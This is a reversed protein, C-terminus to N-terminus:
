PARSPNADLRSGLRQERPRGRSSRLPPDSALARASPRIAASGRAAAPSSSSAPHPSRDLERRPRELQRSASAGARWRRRPAPDLSVARGHSSESASVARFRPSACRQRAPERAPGGRATPSARPWSGTSSTARRRGPRWSAPRQSSHRSTVSSILPSSRIAAPDRLARRDAARSSRVSAACARRRARARARAGLESRARSAARSRAGPSTRSCFTANAPRAVASRRARLRDNRGYPREHLASRAGSASAIPMPARPPDDHRRLHVADVRRDVAARGLGGVPTASTSPWTSRWGPGDGSTKVRRSGAPRARRGRRPRSAGSRSARARPRSRRGRRRARDFGGSRRDPGPDAGAAVLDASLHERAKAAEALPDGRGCARGGRPRGRSSAPGADLPDLGGAEAGEALGLEEEGVTAVRAAGTPLRGRRSRAPALRDLQRAACRKWSMSGARTARWGRPPRRSAPPPRALDEDGALVHRELLHPREGLGADVSTPSFRWCSRAALCSRQAASKVQSKM